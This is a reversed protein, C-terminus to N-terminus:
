FIRLSWGERSKYVFLKIKVLQSQEFALPVRVSAESLKNLYLLIFKQTDVIQYGPTSGHYLAVKKVQPIIEEIMGRTLEEYERPFM